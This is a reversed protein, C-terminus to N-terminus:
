RDNHNYVNNTAKSQVVHYQLLLEDWPKRDHKISYVLLADTYLWRDDDPSKLMSVQWRRFSAIHWSIAKFLAPGPPKEPMMQMSRMEKTLNGTLYNLDQSVPAAYKFAYKLAM